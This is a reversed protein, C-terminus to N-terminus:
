SKDSNRKRKEEYTELWEKETWKRKKNSPPKYTLVGILGAIIFGVAVGLLLVFLYIFLTNM